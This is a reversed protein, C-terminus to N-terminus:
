LSRGVPAEELLVLSRPEIALRGQIETPAALRPRASDLLVYYASGPSVPPPLVVSLSQDWGNYAVYLVRASDGLETGDLRYAIFHHFPNNLYADDAVVGQDTYLSWMPLGNGNGDANLWFFDPRFAAHAQRLHLAHQAFAFFDSNTEILNYDLWTAESDVNFPNNNGFQTRLFEDGGGIMPVGASFLVLALATRAVHMQASRDGGHSSSLNYDDGGGSPGRPWPQDNQKTDYAFLDNLTFGDHAAIYNVSHWPRRGDNSFLDPSGQWRMAIDRPTVDELGLRNLDRRWTDRAVGNWEAWGWPFNGLQYTGAGSGWPEAILDVGPGGEPPRVPLARVIKKLLGDPPTADFEFCGRACRNGLVAALDFRFGDVGLIHHAYALSDVVLREVAESRMNLNPGVGNNNQYSWATEGLAYYSANDLGRWSLLRAQQGRNSATGEATHNYVVDLYVKIGQAHFAAVMQQFERTPGGPSRDCAFRRDPAFYALTSYGWYNDGGAGAQVDNQDNEAEHVPLLEIATVGLTQLYSARRGAARFTGRCAPEPSSADARTFGRLHVEYIIEDRLPRTPKKKCPLLDREVVVGKPADLGSDKAYDHDGSLYIRGDIDNAGGPDHSIELAFPDLLLKNPNFRNGADDVHSVFGITSGKTWATRYTFNPGWARFGYYITGTLGAKELVARPITTSWIHTAPDEDLAVRLREERGRPVDFLHVEIHHAHASFVSVDLTTRADIPDVPGLPDRADDERWHAGLEPYGTTAKCGGPVIVNPGSESGYPEAIDAEAPPFHTAEESSDPGGVADNLMADGRRAADISLRSPDDCGSWIAM